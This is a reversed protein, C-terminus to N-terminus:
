VLELIVGERLGWDCVTLAPLALERLLTDLILAGTPVLDARRADMGPLALREDHSLPALDAAMRRLDPETLRILPAGTRGGQSLRALARAAGGAAACTQPALAVIQQLSPQLLERVHARIAEIEAPRLPDSHAFAAHLRAVGLPLTEDWLVDREDGVALELSGGGLDVGLTCGDGLARRARLAAFIVRAEESGDLIWVPRGLVEGLAAALERGNEAERLASTAVPVVLTAKADDATRRLLAAADLARECVAEPIRRGQALEAGLRVMVRERAVRRLGGDPTPEAVLLHFSTSGLDVVAIPGSRDAKPDGEAPEGDASRPAEYRARLPGGNTGEVVWVSGKECRLESNWDPHGAMLRELLGPILDGHSCFVAPVGDLEDILELAGRVGAGEALRRDLELPIGRERALPELTQRCRVAPSSVLREVAVDAVLERLGEAQRWGPAVLPRLEDRDSFRARKLAKAHRVLYLEL